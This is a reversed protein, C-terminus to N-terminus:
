VLTNGNSCSASCNHCTKCCYGNMMTMSCHGWKFHDACTCNPHSTCPRSVDTCPTPPPTPLTPPPTPPTPPPTPHVASLQSILQGKHTLGWTSNSEYECFVQYGGKECSWGPAPRRWIWYTWHLQLEEFVSLVDSLYQNQMKASAEPGSATAANSHVGWQDIWVAVQNQKVFRVVNRLQDKLWQRNVPV